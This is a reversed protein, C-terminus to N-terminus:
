FMQRHVSKHRTTHPMRLTTSITQGTAPQLSGPALNQTGPEPEKKGAGLVWYGADFTAICLSNM